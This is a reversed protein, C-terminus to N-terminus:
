LDFLAKIFLIIAGGFGVTFVINVFLVVIAGM